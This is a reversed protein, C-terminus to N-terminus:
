LNILFDKGFILVNQGFGDGPFSFSSRRDFGIGYGSYYYTISYTITRSLVQYLKYTSKIETHQFFSNIINKVSIKYKITFFIPKIGFQM